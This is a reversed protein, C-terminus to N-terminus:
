EKYETVEVQIGFIASKPIEVEFLREDQRNKDCKLIRRHEDKILIGEDDHMPIRKDNKKLYNGYDDTEYKIANVLYFIYDADYEADNGHKISLHGEREASQSMQNIMYINIGLYSTLTSLEGSVKSFKDYRDAGNVTIKMASDIVFHKVGLINLFKIEDTVDSLSRSSSYYLLNDENHEFARLKSVVRDEGMEFDFWGVQEHNSFGTLLKLMLSSKGTGKAGALQIFNGLSFGGVSGRKKMDETVLERDLVSIGTSIRKPAVKREVRERVIRIPESKQKHTDEEIETLVEKRLNLYEVETKIAEPNDEDYMRGFKIKLDFAKKAKAELNSM